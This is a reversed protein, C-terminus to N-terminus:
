SQVIQMCAGCLLLPTHPLNTWGVAIGGLHLPNIPHCATALVHGGAVCYGPNNQLWQGHQWGLSEHANVCNTTPHNFSNGSGFSYVIRNYSQNHPLPMNAFNNINAGHHPVVIAVFDLFANLTLHAYDVDGTLLWHRGAYGNDTVTLAIGKENRTTGTGELLMLERQNQIGIARHQVWGGSIVNLQGGSSLIANAFAIHRPGITLDYPAIWQKRLFCFTDQQPSFRNAGAWHDTDWHSLIITSSATPCLTQNSPATHANRYVGCGIDYYLTPRGDLGALASASGQGVDYVVLLEADSTKLLSEISSLPMTPWNQMSFAANLQATIQSPPLPLCSFLTAKVAEAFLGGYVDVQLGKDSTNGLHLEFWIQGELICPHLFEGIENRSTILEIQYLKLEMFQDIVPEGGRSDFQAQWYESWQSLTLSDLVPDASEIEVADFCLAVSEEYGTENNLIPDISDIKAYASRPYEGWFEEGTRHFHINV